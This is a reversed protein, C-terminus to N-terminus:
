YYYANLHHRGKSNSYIVYDETLVTIKGVSKALSRKTYAASRKSQINKV